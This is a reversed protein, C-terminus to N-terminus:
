KILSQFPRCSWKMNNFKESPPSVSLSGASDRIAFDLWLSRYPESIMKIYSIRGRSAPQWQPSSDATIDVEGGGAM